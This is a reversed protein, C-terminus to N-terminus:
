CCCWWWWYDSHHQGPQWPNCNLCSRGAWHSHQVELCEWDGWGGAAGTCRHTEETAAPPQAEEHPCVLEERGCGGPVSCTGLCPYDACLPGLVLMLLQSTLPSPHCLELGVSPCQLALHHHLVTVSLLMYLVTVLLQITLSPLTCTDGKLCAMWLHRAHKTTKVSRNLSTTTPTSAYRPKAATRSCWCKLHCWWTWWAATPHVLLLRCSLALCM